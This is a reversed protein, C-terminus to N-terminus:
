VKGRQASHTPFSEALTVSLGAGPMSFDGLFSHPDWLVVPCSVRTAISDGILTGHADDPGLWRGLTGWPSLSCFSEGGQLTKRRGSLCVCASAM